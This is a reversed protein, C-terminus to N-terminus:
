GQNSDILKTFILDPRRFNWDEWNLRFQARLSIKEDILGKIFM